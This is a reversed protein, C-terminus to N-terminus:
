ARRRAKFEVYELVERLDEEGLTAAVALADHLEPHSQRLRELEMALTEDHPLGGLYLNILSLLPTNSWVSIRELTELDLEGKLRGAGKLLTAHSVGVQQAAKRWGGTRGVLDTLWKQFQEHNAM